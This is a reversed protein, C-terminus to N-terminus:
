FGRPAADQYHARRTSVRNADGLMREREQESEGPLDWPVVFCDVLASPFFRALDSSCVDSSWECDFRTHRRRSSFFFFFFFFIMISFIYFFYCFFFIFM